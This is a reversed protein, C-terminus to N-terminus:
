TSILSGEKPKPPIPIPSAKICPLYDHVQTIIVLCQTPSHYIGGCHTCEQHANDRNAVFTTPCMFSQHYVDDCHTCPDFTEVASRLSPRPILMGWGTSTSKTVTCIYETSLASWMQMPVILVSARDGYMWMALHIVKNILGKRNISLAILM